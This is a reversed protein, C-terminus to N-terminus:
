APHPPISPLLTSILQSVVGRRRNVEPPPVPAGQPGRCPCRINSSPLLIEEMSHCTAQQDPLLRRSNVTDISLSVGVTTAGQSREPHRKTRCYRLGSILLQFVLLAAQRCSLEPTASCSFQTQGIRM